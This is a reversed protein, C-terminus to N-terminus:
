GVDATFRPRVQKGMRLKREIRIRLRPVVRQFRTEIAALRQCIEDTGGAEIVALKEDIRAYQDGPRLRLVEDIRRKRM